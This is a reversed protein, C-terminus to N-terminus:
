PHSLSMRYVERSRTNAIFNFVTFGGCLGPEFDSHSPRNLYPTNIIPVRGFPRLVSITETLLYFNMMVKKICEPPRILSTTICTVHNISQNISQSISQNITNLWPRLGVICRKGCKSIHELAKNFRRLFLDIRYRQYDVPLQRLENLFPLYEKPDKQSKEAILLVLDFDYMGLAINYLENVDVLFLTYKIAEEAQVPQGPEPHATYLIIHVLIGDDSFCM